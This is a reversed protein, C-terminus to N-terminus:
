VGYRSRHYNFNQTLEASTLARNYVMAIPIYADLSDFADWRRGVRYGLNSVLATSASATATSNILTNNIYLKINSGDYTMVAHYWTATSVAYGSSTYKWGGDWFGAYLKNDNASFGNFFMLAGNVSGGNPTGVGNATYEGLSFVCPYEATTVLSNLYFWTSITYVTLNTGVNPGTAFQYLGSGSTGNFYLDNSGNNTLDTGNIATGDNVVGGGNNVKSTNKYFTAHKNNGSLDYWTQGAGPWSRPNRTDLYLQLGNVILGDNIEEAGTITVGQIIM